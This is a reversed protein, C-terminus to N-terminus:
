RPRWALCDDCPDTSQIPPMAPSRLDLATPYTENLRCEPHLEAPAHSEMRVEDDLFEVPDLSMLRGTQVTAIVLCGPHELCDYVEHRVHAELPGTGLEATIQHCFQDAHASCADVSVFHDDM